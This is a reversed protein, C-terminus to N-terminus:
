TNHPHLSEVAAQPFNDTAENLTRRFEMTSINGVLSLKYKASTLFQSILFSEKRRIDFAVSEEVDAIKSDGDKVPSRLFSVLLADTCLLPCSIIAGRTLNYLLTKPTFLLNHLRTNGDSSNAPVCM